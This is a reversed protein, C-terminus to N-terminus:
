RVRVVNTGNYELKVGDSVPIILSFKSLLPIWFAMDFLPLVM